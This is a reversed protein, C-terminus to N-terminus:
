VLSSIWFTVFFYSAFMFPTARALSFSIMSSYSEHCAYSPREDNPTQLRVSDDIHKELSLTRGRAPFRFAFVARSAAAECKRQPPGLEVIM